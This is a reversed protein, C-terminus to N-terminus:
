AQANVRLNWMHIADYDPRRKGPVPSTPAHPLIPSQAALTAANLETPVLTRVIGDGIKLETRKWRPQTRLFGREREQRSEEQARRLADLSPRGVYRVEFFIARTEQLTRSLKQIYTHSVLSSPVATSGRRSPRTRRGLSGAGRGRFCDLRNCSTGVRRAIQTLPHRM